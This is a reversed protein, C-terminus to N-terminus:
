PPENDAPEEVTYILPKCHPLIPSLILQPDLTATPELLTNAPPYNIAKGLKTFSAVPKSSPTVLLKAALKDLNLSALLPIDVRIDPNSSIRLVTSPLENGFRGVVSSKYPEAAIASLPTRDFILSNPSIM